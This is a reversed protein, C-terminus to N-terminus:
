KNEQVLPHARHAEEQRPRGKRPNMCTMGAAAATDLSHKHNWIPSDLRLSLCRCLAFAREWAGEWIGVLVGAILRSIMTTSLTTSLSVPTRNLIRPPRDGTNWFRSFLM